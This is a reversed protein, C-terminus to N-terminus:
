SLRPPKLPPVPRVNGRGVEVLAVMALIGMVAAVQVATIREGDFWGFALAGLPILYTIMSAYLPGRERIMVYFAYACLGTGLIGLIAVAVSAQVLHERAVSERASFPALIMSTIILLFITLGLPNAASFYKKVAINAIVYGLPVSVAMAFHPWPVSRSLGDQMLAVLCILGGIVGILERANPRTGLMPMSVLITLLPQLGIMIGVFSSGHRTILYPQLCYPLAYGLAIVLAVAALDRRRPRWWGKTVTALAALALAGGAVRLCGITIPGFALGAKKMLIFSAGWTVSTFLFL